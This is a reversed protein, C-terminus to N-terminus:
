DVSNINQMTSAVLKFLVFRSFRALHKYGQGSLRWKMIAALFNKWVYFNVMLKILYLIEIILALSDNESSWIWFTMTTMTAFTGNQKETCYINWHRNFRCFKIKNFDALYM